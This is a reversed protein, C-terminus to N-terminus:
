FSSDLSDNPEGVRVRALIASLQIALRRRDPLRKELGSRELRSFVALRKENSFGDKCRRKMPTAPAGDSGVNLRVTFNCSVPKGAQHSLRREDVITVKDHM